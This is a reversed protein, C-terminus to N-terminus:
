TGTTMARQHENHRKENTVHIATERKVRWWFCAIAVPLWTLQSPQSATVREFPTFVIFVQVGLLLDHPKQAGTSLDIDRVGL